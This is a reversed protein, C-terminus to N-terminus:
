VASRRWLKSVLDQKYAAFMLAFNILLLYVQFASNEINWERIAFASLVFSASTLVFTIKTETEPYKWLKRLTPVTALLDSVIALIIAFGSSMTIFWLVFAFLSLAGCFWDLLTLHWYGEKARFSVIFVVLPWFGSAFVPATIWPDAGSGLAIASASLPALAWMFWTARNPQTTGRWTDRLYAFMAAFNVLLSAVILGHVFTM